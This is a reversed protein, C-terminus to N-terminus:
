EIQINKIYKELMDRNMIENNHSDIYYKAAYRDLVSYLEVINQNNFSHLYLIDGLFLLKEDEVFLVSSDSSHNGGIFDFICHTNGLDFSITNDIGISPISLNINETRIGYEIELMEETIPHELGQEVREHVSKSDWNLIKMQKTKEITKKSAFSLCSFQSLGFWHDCHSHSILIGQPYLLQNAEISNKIEIAHKESNGADFLISYNDGSILSVIPRDSIELSEWFHIRSSYKVM